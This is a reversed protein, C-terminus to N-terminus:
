ENLAAQYPHIPADRMVWIKLRHGENVTITPMANLFPSLMQQATQSMSQSAQLRMLDSGSYTNNSGTQVQSANWGTLVGVLGATFLIRATHRNVSDALGFSGLGELAPDNPRLDLTKGDPFQLTDFTIALRSDTQNQVKQAKGIARTGSPILLQRTLPDYYPRDIMALVPSTYNDTILKNILVADLFTGVRLVPISPDVSIPVTQQTNPTPPSLPPAAAPAPLVATSPAAHSLSPEVAMTRSTDGRPNVRLDDLQYKAQKLAAEAQLLKVQNTLTLLQQMDADQEAAQPSTSPQQQGISVLPVSSTKPEATTYNFPQIPPTTTGPKKKFLSITYLICLFIVIAVALMMNRKSAQTTPTPGTQGRSPVNSASQPSTARGASAVESDVQYVGSSPQDHDTM